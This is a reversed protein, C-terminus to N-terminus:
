LRGCAFYDLFFLPKAGQVAIDNACHNVLDAAVSRHRGTAFAIKLKTGVGDVSTVLVPARWQKMELAYLAGFGGIEALVNHDFTGKALSRIRRKAKDARSIDVGADGYTIPQKKM